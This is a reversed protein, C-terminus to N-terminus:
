ENLEYLSVYSDYFKTGKKLSRIPATATSALFEADNDCNEREKTTTSCATSLIGDPTYAGARSSGYSWVVFPHYDAAYRTKAFVSQNQGDVLRITGMSPLAQTGTPTITFAETVAYGFQRGWGDYSDHAALGLTAYPVSGILVSDKAAGLGTTGVGQVRWFGGIHAGPSLPLVDDVNAGSPGATNNHYQCFEVGANPDNEQLAPNAPCPFRNNQIIFRELAVDVAGQPMISNLANRIHDYQYIKYIQLCTTTFLGIIVLAIALEIFSFGGNDSERTM